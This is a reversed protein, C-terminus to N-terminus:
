MLLGHSPCHSSQSDGAHRLFSSLYSCISVEAELHSIALSPSSKQPPDLQPFSARAFGVSPDVISPVDPFFFLDNLSSFAHVLSM